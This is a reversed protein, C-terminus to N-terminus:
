AHRSNWYETGYDHVIETGQPISKVAFFRVYEGCQSIEWEANPDDSHNYVMGYGLVVLVDNEDDPSLFVYDHLINYEQLENNAMVLYPCLEITEGQEIFKSSFVGQGHIDSQKAFLM